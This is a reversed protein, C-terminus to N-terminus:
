AFGFAQFSSYILAMQSKPRKGAGLGIRLRGLSLTDQEGEGRGEGGPSPSVNARAKADRGLNTTPHRRFPLCLLPTQLRLTRIKWRRGM